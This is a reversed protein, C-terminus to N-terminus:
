DPTLMVHGIFPYVYGLVQAEPYPLYPPWGPRNQSGNKLRRVWLNKEGDSALVALQLLNRLYGPPSM